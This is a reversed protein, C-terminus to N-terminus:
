KTGMEVVKDYEEKTVPMVSLRGIKVLLMNKLAAIKKIESLPVAKKLANVAKLEVSAWTDDEATPDTYFEKTVKAIAVVSSEKGSHYFLVEDGKKMAKMHNRAAYNRVGDWSTTKDKVLEPWGYTEPDSKVLWYNM